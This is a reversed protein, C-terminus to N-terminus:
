KKRESSRQYGSVRIVQRPKVKRLAHKLQPILPPLVEIETSHAVLTVGGLRLGALKQQHKLSQDVTVFVDFWTAALKLFEGNKKGAWGM